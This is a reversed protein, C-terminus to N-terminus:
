WDYDFLANHTNGRTWDYVSLSYFFRVFTRVATEQAEVAGHVSYADFMM